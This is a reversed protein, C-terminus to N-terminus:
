DGGRARRRDTPGSDWGALIPRLRRSVEMLARAGHYPDHWDHSGWAAPDFPSADRAPPRPDVWEFQRAFASLYHPERTWEYAMLLGVLMECQEWWRKVRWSPPLYPAFRVRGVPSGFVPVGGRRHDWGYRWAHDVLGLVVARTQDPPDGLVGVARRALWALEAEHGYSVGIPRWRAPHWSWDADLLDNMAFGDRRDVGRTLILDLLARLHAAHRPDGTAEYLTTLAEVVHLHVDVTKGVGDRGPVPMWHSDFRERFGFPGDAARDVLADFTRAAWGTAWESGAALAYESLAFIAFAHGYTRKDRIRPTGDRQVSLVFGEDHPDWMRDVLFRAGKGALELYGQGTLGHRHAAAFTWVLRAQPVLHKDTSGIPQGDARRHTIFGGHPDDWGHTAWFPLVIDALAHEAHGRIADLRAPVPPPGAGRVPPAGTARWARSAIGHVDQALRRALALGSRWPRRTRARGRNM